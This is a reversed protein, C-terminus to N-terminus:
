ILLLEGHYCVGHAPHLNIWVSCSRFGDILALCIIEAGREALLHEVPLRLFVQVPRYRIGIAESM